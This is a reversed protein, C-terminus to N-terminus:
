GDEVSDDTALLVLDAFFSSRCFKAEDKNHVLCIKYICSLAYM